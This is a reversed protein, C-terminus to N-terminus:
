IFQSRHTPMIKYTALAIHTLINIPMVGHRDVESPQFITDNRSLEFLVQNECETKICFALLCACCHLAQILLYVLQSKKM